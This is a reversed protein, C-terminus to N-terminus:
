DGAVDRRSFVAFALGLPVAAFLLCVWLARIVPPWFVPSQFVGHWADFQASLMYHHLPQWHVLGVIAEQVLEYVLTGVIAAASSRTVASLFIGFSAVSLLPVSFVAIAAVSLGFAHLASVRNGSLDIVPNVGV